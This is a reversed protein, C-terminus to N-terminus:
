NSIIFKWLYGETNTTVELLLQKQALGSIQSNSTTSKGELHHSKAADIWASVSELNGPKKDQWCDCVLSEVMVQYTTKISDIQSLYPDTQIIGLVVNPSNVSGIMHINGLFNGDSDELETSTCYEISNQKENDGYFTCYKAISAGSIKLASSMSIGKAALSSKMLSNSDVYSFNIPTILKTPVATNNTPIATENTPNERIPIPEIIPKENIPKETVTIPKQNIPVLITM